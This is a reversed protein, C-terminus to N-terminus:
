ARLILCVRRRYQLGTFCCRRACRRPGRARPCAECRAIAPCQAPLHRVGCGMRVELIRRPAERLCARRHAVEIQRRAAILEEVSVLSRPTRSRRASPQSYVFKAPRELRAARQRNVGAEPESHTYARASSHRVGVQIKTLDTSIANYRRAHASWNGIDRADKSYSKLRTGSEPGRAGEGRV